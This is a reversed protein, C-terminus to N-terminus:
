CDNSKHFKHFVKTTFNKESIDKDNIMLGFDVRRSYGGSVYTIM